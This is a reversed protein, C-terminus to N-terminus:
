FSAVDGVAVNHAKVFGAPLELVYRTAIKPGFSTPFTDPSVNEEVHVIEKGSSMWLIDISFLMDKMWFGHVGDQPFVFLMGEDEALGEKGSLGQARTADSDAITVRVKEGGIVLSYEASDTLESVSPASAVYALGVVLACIFFVAAYLYKVKM